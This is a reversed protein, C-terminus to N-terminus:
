PLAIRARARAAAAAPRPRERERDRHARALQDARRQNAQWQKFFYAAEYLTLVATTPVLSLGANLALGRPTLPPWWQPFLGHLPLLLVLSTALAAETGARAAAATAPTTHVLLGVGGVRLILRDLGVYEISGTLSAIM